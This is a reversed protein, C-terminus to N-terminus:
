IYSGRERTLSRKTMGNRRYNEEQVKKQILDLLASNVVHILVFDKRESNKPDQPTLCIMHKSFAFNESTPM